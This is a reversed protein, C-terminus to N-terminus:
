AGAEMRQKETILTHCRAIDKKLVQYLKTNDVQGTAAKSRLEYLDKNCQHIHAKLEEVSKGRLSELKAKQKM